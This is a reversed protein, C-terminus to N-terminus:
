IFHLERLAQTLDKQFKRFAPVRALREIDIGRALPEYIRGIERARRRRSSGGVAVNLVEQLKTKPHAITEVQSPKNPLSLERPSVSTGIVAVLADPDALMWSETMRIPIVPVIRDCVPTGRKHAERIEFLGPEIRESWATKFTRADADAHVLLLHHGHAAQAAYLIRDVQSGTARPSIIQLEPVDVVSMSKLNLIRSATRQAISNLFRNDTSGEALLAMVLSKM